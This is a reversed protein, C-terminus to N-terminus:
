NDNEKQFPLSNTIQIRLPNTQDFELDKVIINETKPNVFSTGQFKIKTLNINIFECESLFAM